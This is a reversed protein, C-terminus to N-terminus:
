QLHFKYHSSGSFKRFACDISIVEVEEDCQQFHHSSDQRDKSIEKEQPDFSIIIFSSQYVITWMNSQEYCLYVKMGM